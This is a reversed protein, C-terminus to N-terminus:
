QGPTPYSDAGNEAGAPDCKALAKDLWYSTAHYDRLRQLYPWAEECRGLEALTQALGWVGAHNKVQSIEDLHHWLEIAQETKGEQKLCLAYGNIAGGLNPALELAREFEPKAAGPAEQNWLAWGLGNHAKASNPALDLARTFHDLALSAEGSEIERWGQQVLQGAQIEQSATPALPSRHHLAQWGLLGAVTALAALMALTFGRKRARQSHEQRLSTAVDGFEELLARDLAEEENRPTAQRHPPLPSQEQHKM